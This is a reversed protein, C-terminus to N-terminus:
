ALARPRQEDNGGARLALRAREPRGAPLGLVRRGATSGSTWIAPLTGDDGDDKSVDDGHVDGVDDGKALEPISM